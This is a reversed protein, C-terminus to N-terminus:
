IVELGKRRIVNLLALAPGKPQRTGRELQSIYGTTLNLYRAFAAQSLKASVRMRRIENGQIPQATPLPEPGLLRVTIQEYTAKDMLGSHLQDGAMELLAESLNSLKKTM